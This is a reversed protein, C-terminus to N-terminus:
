SVYSLILCKKLWFNSCIYKTLKIRWLFCINHYENSADWWSVESSYGCHINLPSILLLLRPYWVKDPAIGNRIEWLIHRKRGYYGWYQFLIGWCVIYVWIMMCCTAADSWLVQHKGSMWCQKGSIWCQKGSMWYQKGSMWCKALWGASNAVWGASKGCMWCQKGSMWCKKVSVWCKKAVWGVSKAVWGVSKAVWGASKAVWGASTLCM